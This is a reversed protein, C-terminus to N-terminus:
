REPSRQSPTTTNIMLKLSKETINNSDSKNPFSFGSFNVKANWLKWTSINKKKVDSSTILTFMCSGEIM